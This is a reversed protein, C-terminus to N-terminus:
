DEEVEYRPYTTAEHDKTTSHYHDDFKNIVEIMENLKRIFHFWDATPPLLEITKPM